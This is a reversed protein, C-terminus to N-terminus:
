SSVLVGANRVATALGHPSLRPHVAHWREARRSRCSRFRPLCTARYIVRLHARNAPAIRAARASVARMNVRTLECPHVRRRLARVPSSGASLSRRVLLLVRRAESTRKNQGHFARRQASRAHASTLRVGALTFVVACREIGSVGSTAARNTLQATCSGYEASTKLHFVAQAASHACKARDQPHVDHQPPSIRGYRTSSRLTHVVLQVFGCSANDCSRIM